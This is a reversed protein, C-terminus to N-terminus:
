KGGEIITKGEDAKPREKKEKPKTFGTKYYFPLHISTLEHQTNPTQTKDIKIVSDFGVIINKTKFTEKDNEDMEMVKSKAKPADSKQGRRIYLTLVSNHLLAKGGSLTQLAIFGGLNTRTQGILLVAINAKAIPPVARRFFESLKRALIAMTDDTLSKKIGSKKEQEGTPSLSHVSDLVIVDVLKKRALDIITDLCEEAKSFEGIVLDELQVGCQKARDPDFAELPILYVIKDKKQAQAILNYALTTKGTAPAGWLVSFHGYAIGGGLMDDIAKVGFPTKTWSEVSSGFHIVKGKLKKNTEGIVKKLMAKRETQTKFTKNTNEEKKKKGM